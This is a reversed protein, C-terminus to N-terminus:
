VVSVPKLKNFIVTGSLKQGSFFTKVALAVKNEGNLLYWYRMGIEGESGELPLLYPDRDFPPLPSGDGSYTHLCFGFGPDVCDYTYLARLSQEHAVPNQSIKSLQFSGDQSHLLGTIRPTFNPADPEHTTRALALDLDPTALDVIGNYVADTQNGNSVIHMQGVSRMANYVILSLNQVKSPDLPVTKVIGNAYELVRNRSNLSRGMVWYVQVYEGTTSRGIIIGRGPYPNDALAKLNYEATEKPSAM